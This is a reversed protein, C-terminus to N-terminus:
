SLVFPFHIIFFLCGVGGENEGGDDSIIGDDEWGGMMIGAGVYM